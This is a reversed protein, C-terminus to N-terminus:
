MLDNSQQHLRNKVKTWYVETSLKKWGSPGGNWIRSFVESSPELGTNKKYNAGYWSLYIRMIQKSKDSSKRDEYTFQTPRRGEKKAIIKEIRNVDDVCIKHIQAIGLAEGNDGIANENYGSEVQIIADLLSESIKIKTAESILSNMVTLIILIIKTKM